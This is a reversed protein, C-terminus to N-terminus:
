IVGVSYPCCAPLVMANRGRLRDQKINCQWNQKGLVCSMQGAIGRGACPSLAATVFALHTVWCAFLLPLIEFFFEQKLQCKPNLVLIMHAKEECFLWKKKNRSSFMFKAVSSLAKIWSLFRHLRSCENKCSRRAMACMEHM